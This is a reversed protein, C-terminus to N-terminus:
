IQNLFLGTNVSNYICAQWFNIANTVPHAEGDIFRAFIKQLDNPSNMKKTPPLEGQNKESLHTEAKQTNGWLGQRNM